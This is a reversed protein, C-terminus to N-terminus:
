RGEINKLIGKILMLGDGLPPIINIAHFLYIYSLIKFLFINTALSILFFSIGLIFLIVLPYVAVKIITNSNIDSTIPFISIKNWGFVVKVDIDGYDKKLFYIHMFEHLVFSLLIGFFFLIEVKLCFVLFSQNLTLMYPLMIFSSILLILLFYSKIFWFLIKRFSIKKVQYYYIM